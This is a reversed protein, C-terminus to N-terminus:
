MLAQIKRELWLTYVTSSTNLEHIIKKPNVNIKLLQRVISIFNLHRQFDIQQNVKNRRIYNEFSKCHAELSIPSEKLEYACIIQYTRARKSYTHINFDINLLHTRCTEFDGKELTFRALAIHYASASLNEAVKSFKGSLIYDVWDFEKLICAINILHVFHDEVFFHNMILIDKEISMKYLEFAEQVYLTQNIRIQQSTYNLLYTFIILQDEKNILTHKQQFISKLQQYDKEKKDLILQWALWYFQHFIPLSALNALCYAQITDSFQIQYTSGALVQSTAIDCAYKLKMGLFYLDFSDMAENLISEKQDIRSKGDAYFDLHEWQMQEYYFQPSSITPKLARKKDLLLDLEHRLQYKTYVKALLFDSLFDDDGLEINVLYQKLDLHIQSVSKMLRRYDYDIKGFIKKFAIEQVLKPSDFAPYYSLIYKLILFADRNSNGQQKHWAKFQKVTAPPLKALLKILKSKVLSNQNDNESFNSSNEIPM